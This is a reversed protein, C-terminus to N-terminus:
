KIAKFILAEKLSYNSQALQSIHLKNLLHNTITSAVPISKVRILDMGKIKKRDEEDLIILQQHLKNFDEIDINNYKANITNNDNLIQNFTEYAGSSGVLYNIKYKNCNYYLEELEKDLSNQINIIDNNTLPDQLKLSNLLRTVGINYSKSWLKNDNKSIIFEISGGGIDIILYPYDKIKIAKTVAYWILESELEGDIVEISINTIDKIQKIIHEKNKASRIASTAVCISHEVNYKQTILSYEKLIDSLAIISSDEIINDHKIGNLLASARKAKYCIEIENDSIKKAILLNCINTGIDISSILM